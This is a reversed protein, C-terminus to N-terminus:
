LIQGTESTLSCVVIHMDCFTSNRSIRLALKGCSYQNFKNSIIRKVKHWYYLYWGIRHQRTSINNCEGRIQTFIPVYQPYASWYFNLGIFFWGYLYICFCCDSVSWYFEVDWSVLRYPDWVHFSSILISGDRSIIASKTRRLSMRWVRGTPSPTQHKTPGKM